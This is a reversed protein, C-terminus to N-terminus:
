NETFGSFSLHIRELYVMEFLTSLFWLGGSYNSLGSTKGFKSIKIAYMKSSNEHLSLLSFKLYANMLHLHSMKTSDVNILLKNKQNRSPLNITSILIHRSFNTMIIQGSCQHISIKLLKTKILLYLLSYPFKLPLLHIGRHKGPNQIVVCLINTNQFEPSSLSLVSRNFKFCERLKVRSGQSKRLSRYSTTLVSFCFCLWYGVVREVFGNSVGFCFVSWNMIKQLVCM